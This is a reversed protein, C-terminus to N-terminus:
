KGELVCRALVVDVTAQTLSIGRMREETVGFTMPTMRLVQASQEPTLPLTHRIEVTELIQARERMHALVREGDIGDSRLEGSLAERVERLHDAAPLVKYLEGQPALVRAFEAYDAPTFVDAVADLSGDAFPLRKLDAVLWLPEHSARAASIIADRSLDVGFVTSNAFEAKIGRSYYGEGCGVDAIAFPKDGFRTKLMHLLADLVPKYLGAELVARRSKFLEADYKEGSQPRDPALNAYGKASLDYCHGNACRLSRGDDSLGGMCRPCRMLPLAPRLLDALVTTKM